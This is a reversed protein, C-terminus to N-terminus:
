MSLTTSWRRKLSTTNRSMESTSVSVLHPLYIPWQYCRRSTQFISLTDKTRMKEPIYANRSYISSVVKVYHPDIYLCYDDQFGLIYYAKNSKGGIVGVFQKLQMLIQMQDQYVPSIRDIGLRTHVIILLSYQWEFDKMLSMSFRQTVMQLGIRRESRPSIGM